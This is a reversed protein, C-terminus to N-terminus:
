DLPVLYVAGNDVESPVDVRSARPAGVVLTRQGDLTGYALNTGFRSKGRWTQGVVITETELNRGNVPVDRWAYIRVEGADLSRGINKGECSVALGVGHDGLGEIFSLAGGFRDVVAAKPSGPISVLRTQTLILDGEEGWLTHATDFRYDIDVSVLDDALVMDAPVAAVDGANIADVIISGSVMVVAGRRNNNAVAYPAGVVLDGIGDGDMDKGGVMAWGFAATVNRANLTVVEPGLRACNPGHGFLVYVRGNWVTEGAGPAGLAVEDCGDHDLDGLAAVSLGLFANDAGTLVLDPQAIVETLRPDTPQRGLYFIVGGRYVRVNDVIHAGDTPM